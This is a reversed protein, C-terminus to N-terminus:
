LAGAGCSVSSGGDDIKLKKPAPDPVESRAGASKRTESALKQSSVLAGVRAKLSVDTTKVFGALIYRVGSTVEKGAHM